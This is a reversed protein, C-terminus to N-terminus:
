DAPVPVVSLMPAYTIIYAEKIEHSVQTYGADLVQKRARACSIHNLPSLDGIIPNKAEEKENKCLFILGDAALFNQGNKPRGNLKAVGEFMENGVCVYVEADTMNKRVENSM